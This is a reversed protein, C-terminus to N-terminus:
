LEIIKTNEFSFLSNSNRYKDFNIRGSIAVLSKNEYFKTLTSEHVKWADSWMLCDVFGNNCRVRVEAFKGAKSSKKPRIYDIQGAVVSESFKKLKVFDEPSSFLGAMRKSKREILRVFDIDGFGCIDKQKLIWFYDKSMNDLTFDEPYSLKYQENYFAVLGRRETVSNIRELKDFCGSLILNLVKDRGVGRGKIRKIFDNLSVFEGEERLNLINELVKDGIGYVTALSWYIKNENVSPVFSNGSNNIDPPVVKIEPNIKHMEFIRYPVQVDSSHQLSSTWFAIPYHIKLWMTWYSMISYATSHSNHSVIGNAVFNHVEPM